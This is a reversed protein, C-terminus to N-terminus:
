GAQRAAANRVDALLKAGDFGRDSARKIWSQTVPEAAKRWRAAEDVSLEAISNGRKRAFEQAIVARDDWMRGVMATAAAGSHDDVVTRLDPPLTEYRRRNMALLFTSVSVATGSLETHHQVFEQLRISAVSEWTMLCGDIAKHALGDRIQPLPITVPTAELARITAFALPSPAQLKLTKIDNAHAIPKKSHLVSGDSACLSLVQVDRFEDRLEATFVSQATRCNASAKMGLVFPLEFVETRPFRGPIAGPSTWVLDVRGDRAQDYLDRPSGGLQMIPYLDIRIRGGSTTEIKKAWPVLFHSHVNSVPSLAHHLKLVHAANQARASRPVFPMAVAAAGSLVHRRSIAMGAEGERRSGRVPM